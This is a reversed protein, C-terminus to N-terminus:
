NMAASQKLDRTPRRRAGKRSAEARRLHLGCRRITDPLAMEEDGLNPDLARIGEGTGVPVRRAM